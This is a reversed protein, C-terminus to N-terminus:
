KSEELKRGCIPCSSIKIDFMRDGNEDEFHLVWGSKDDYAIQLHADDLTTLVATDHPLEKFFTRGSNNTQEIGKCYECGKEREQESRFASICLQFDAIKSNCLCHTRSQEQCYDQEASLEQNMYPEKLENKYFRIEENCSKIAKEIESM